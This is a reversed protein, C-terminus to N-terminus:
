NKMAERARQKEQLTENQFFDIFRILSTLFVLTIFLPALWGFYAPCLIMLIFFIFAESREVIGPSYYFSKNGHNKIFIGVVLFTTVCMLVSILMLLTLLGRSEPDYLYLGLIVASEVLRDSIIDLVAGKPSPIAQARALSGDLTDFYGSALLLFVASMTMGMAIAPLAALGFCLAAGTIISPHMQLKQLLSVVPDVFIAQYTSRYYTDIM